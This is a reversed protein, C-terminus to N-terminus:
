AKKLYYSQYKISYWIVESEVILKLPFLLYHITPLLPAAWRVVSYVIDAALIVVSDIAQWVRM